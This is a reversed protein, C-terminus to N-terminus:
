LSLKRNALVILFLWDSSYVLLGRPVKIKFLTSCLPSKFTGGNENRVMGITGGTYLVLVRGDQVNEITLQEYSHNRLQEMVKGENM